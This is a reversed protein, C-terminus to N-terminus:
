AYGMLWAVSHQATPLLQSVNAVAEVTWPVAMSVKAGGATAFSHMLSGALLTWGDVLVFLLLKFPLSILVPPLMMMSMSILLTSIVIDIVLFPLYVRFGMLFATKLESLMFAPILAVMDVDARTLKEPESIDVGRYEMVMYLSSWNGTADIQDFMFDRVPQKAKNWLVEPDRIEGARYPAIAETNIRDITPSMVLLTMFMALATIVQPPPISQAGIAQKLLGLVIIIRMFCTTMLIISPALTIVTLLLLISIPGSVGSSLRGERSPVNAASESGGAGGGPMARAVSDLVLIPNINALEGPAASSTAAPGDIPPGFQQASAVSPGSLFTSCALVIAALPVRLRCAANM